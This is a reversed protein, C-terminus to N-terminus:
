GFTFAYAEAGPDLFEIEFLRERAANRRACSSTSSRAISWARARRTRTRVTTRWRRSAMWWCGSGSRSGARRRASCWTCTARRFATCCAGAQPAVVVAREAEMRWSGALTWQNARLNAAPAYHTDRDRGIRMGPAFDTAREYGLYTEGSFLASLDPAAEVGRAEPRVNRRRGANQGAESLLARIVQETREYAHEGAVQHRM